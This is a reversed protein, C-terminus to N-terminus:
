ISSHRRSGWWRIHSGKVTKFNGLSKARVGPVPFMCVCAYGPFICLCRCVTEAGRISRLLRRYAHIFVQLIFSCATYYSIHLRIISVHLTPTIAWLYAKQASLQALRPEGEVRFSIRTLGTNAM